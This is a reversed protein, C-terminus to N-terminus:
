KTQVNYDNVEYIQESEKGVTAIGNEKTVEITQPFQLDIRKKFLFKLYEAKIEKRSSIKIQIAIISM